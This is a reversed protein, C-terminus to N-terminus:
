AFKPWFLKAARADARQKMRCRDRRLQFMGRPNQFLVVAIEKVERREKTRLVSKEPLRLVVHHFPFTVLVRLKADRNVTKVGFMALRGCFHQVPEINKKDIQLIDARAIVRKDPRHIQAHARALLLADGDSHQIPWVWDIAHRRFPRHEVRVVSREDAHM